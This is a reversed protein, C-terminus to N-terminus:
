LVRLKRVVMREIMTSNNKDIIVENKDPQMEILSKM